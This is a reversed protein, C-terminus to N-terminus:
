ARGKLYGTPNLPKGDKWIEYHVHPGTSNGTSGSYSIIDGRKVKQGIKVNTTKNHAYFTSFGHGHELVVLNGNGGHWGSYSVIGDATARVPTGPSISLDIGSHFDDAGTTPNERM